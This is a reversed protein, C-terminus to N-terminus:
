EKGIADILPNPDLIPGFSIIEGNHTLNISQGTEMALSWFKDPTIDPKVQAALAYIGAIYPISWSWGGKRYFVYDEIGTPSATTRSDMPVLLSDSLPQSEYFNRSWFFGPEYSQFDDPDALPQRGLGQFKFGYIEEVSSCIVFVGADKAEQTAATIDTYGISSPDWGIQMSIVRIKRDEPLSQNIELLRRIGKALCSFDMAQDKFCKSADIFYLDAGPAVGVTKGVAISAVASGHMSAEVNLDKTDDIEEYFKLQEVYEVHNALLSIDIIAIGVGIGTIGKDHLQRVGPGPNGGLEMIRMYDYQAPIKSDVPWITKSDFDAFMLDDLSNSLDYTSLDASRLDMQWQDDSDPDYTPFHDIALNSYDVPQPQSDIKPFISPLVSLPKRTPITTPLASLSESTPFTTPQAPLSKSQTKTCASLFLVILFFLWTVKKM